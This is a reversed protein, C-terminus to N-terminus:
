TAKRRRYARMAAAHRCSASCYVADERPHERGRADDQWVFERGCGPLACVKADPLTGRGHCTPCQATM